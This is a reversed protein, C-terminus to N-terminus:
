AQHEGHVKKCLEVAGELLPISRDLRPQKWYTCGLAEMRELTDPHEIGEALCQMREFAEPDREDLVEHITDCAKQALELADQVLGLRSYTEGIAGLLSAQVLKDDNFETEMRTKAKDLSEGSLQMSRQQAVALSAISPEGTLLASVITAPGPLIVRTLIPRRFNAGRTIALRRQKKAAGSSEGVM